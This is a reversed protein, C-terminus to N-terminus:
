LALVVANWEYAALTGTGTITLTPTVGGVLDEAIAFFATVHATYASVTTSNVIDSSALLSNTFYINASAALSLDVLTLTTGTCSVSMMIVYNGGALQFRNLSTDLVVGSNVSNIPVTAGAMALSATVSSTLTQSVSQKVAYLKATYPPNVVNLNYSSRFECVGTFELYGISNANPTQYSCIELMFDWQNPDTGLCGNASRLKRWRSFESTMPVNFTFPQWANGAASPTRSRAMGINSSRASLFNSSASLVIEGSQNNAAYASGNPIWRVKFKTFRWEVYLASLNALRTFVTADGPNVTVIGVALGTAGTFTGPWQECFKEVHVGGKESRSDTNAPLNRQQPIVMVAKDNKKKEVVLHQHGAACLERWKQRPMGSPRGPPTLVQEVVAAKM